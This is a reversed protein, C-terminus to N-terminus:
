DMSIGHLFDMTLIKSTSFSPIINPISYGKYASLLSRFLDFFKAENEYDCEALLETKIEQCLVDLFLRQPLLNTYKILTMLNKLDSEISEAVGPYQIKVAVKRGDKLWAEHVQGISAAAVPQENFNEFHSRWDSGWEAELLNFLQKKPMCDANNRIEMLVHHLLPPLHEEQISLM